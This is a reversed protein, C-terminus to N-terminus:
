PASRLTPDAVPMATVVALNQYGGRQADYPGACTVLNLRPSGRQSFIWGYRALAGRPVLRLAVVAFTEQLRESRLVLHQGNKVSLLGAFPGLGQSVSDVHGAVVISGFPDGIRSGGRWWGAVRIDDPVVLAGDGRIGVPRIPVVMGDPLRGSTPSEPRVAGTRRAPEAALTVTVGPLHGPRRDADSSASHSPRDQLPAHAIGVTVAGITCMTAAVWSGVTTVLGERSPRSSM